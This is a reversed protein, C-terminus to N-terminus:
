RTTYPNGGGMSVVQEDVKGMRSLEQTLAKLIMQKDSNPQQGQGSSQNMGQPLASTMQAPPTPPQPVNAGPQTQQDLAPAPATGQQRAALAAQLQPSLGPNGQEM